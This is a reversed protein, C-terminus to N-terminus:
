RHTATGALIKSRCPSEMPQLKRWPMDVQEQMTQLTPIQELMARWPSCLFMKDSHDKEMPQLLVVQKVMTKEMPQLPIDAAHRASSREKM